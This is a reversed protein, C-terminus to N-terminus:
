RTGLPNHDLNIPPTPDHADYSLIDNDIATEDAADTNRGVVTVTDIARRGGLQGSNSVVARTASAAQGAAAGNLTLALERLGPIQKFRRAIARRVSSDGVFTLTPSYQGFLGGKVTATTM